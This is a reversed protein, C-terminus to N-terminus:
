FDNTFLILLVIIGLIPQLVQGSLKLMNLSEFYNVLLKPFLANTRRSSRM